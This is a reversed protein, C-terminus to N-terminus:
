HLLPKSASRQQEAAIDTRAADQRDGPTRGASIVDRQDDGHRILAVNRRRRREPQEPETEATERSEATALRGSGFLGIKPLPSRALRDGKEHTREPRPEAGDDPLRAAV